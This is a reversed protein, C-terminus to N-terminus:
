YLSTDRGHRPEICGIRLGLGLVTSTSSWHLCMSGTKEEGVSLVHILVAEAFRLSYETYECENNYESVTAVLFFRTPILGNLCWLVYIM